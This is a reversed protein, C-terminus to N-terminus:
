FIILLNMNLFYQFCPPARFHSFNRSLALLINSNDWIIFCNSGSTAIAKEDGSADLTETFKFDAMNSEIIVWMSFGNCSKCDRKHVM